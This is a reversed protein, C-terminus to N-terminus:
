DFGSCFVTDAACAFQREYAGLDQIGFADNGSGLLDVIRPLHDATPASANPALYDVAPSDLRLHYDLGAGDVFHPDAVLNNISPPVGTLDNSLLYDTNNSNVTGNVVSYIRKGPQWHISNKFQTGHLTGAGGDMSSRFTAAGGISNGAITSWLVSLHGQDFPAHLLEASVNNNFMAAGSFYVLARDGALEVLNEGSNDVLETGDLVAVAAEDLSGSDTASARIAAGTRRTGGNGIASNSVIRNCHHFAACNVAVGLASGPSANPAGELTGKM